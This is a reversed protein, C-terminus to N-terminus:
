GSYLLGRRSPDERVVRTIEGDPLNGAIRNWTRGYDSTKYLYPRTDDLKYRTSAVYCTAAHHPSPEPVSVLTWEGLEPPTVPQWTRGRDRSLHVLGDDTGAWLVDREHLSEVLAFVTCYVEAGTNDRSIPGGSLGLKTPDNRTLDPSVVEWTQGEGLSRFVRNGAGGPARSDWRSYFIPFTWQFRYRHEAPATGMGYAEPWVSIMREQGTRHDYHILRGMGPGSGVAGAVVVNPDGPKVGTRSAPCASRGTTRSPATSGTPGSTTPACTTSSRPRSTTSRQGRSDVTSRCAGAATM